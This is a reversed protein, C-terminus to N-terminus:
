LTANQRITGFYADAALLLAIQLLVFPLGTALIPVIASWEGMITFPIAANALYQVVVIAISVRALVTANVAAARHAGQAHAAVVLISIVWIVFLSVITIAGQVWAIKQYNGDPWSLDFGPAAGAMSAYAMLGIAAFGLLTLAAALVSLVVIVITPIQFPLVPDDPEM